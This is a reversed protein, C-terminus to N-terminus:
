TYVFPVLNSPLYLSHWPQGQKTVRLAHVQIGEETLMHLVENGRGFLKGHNGWAALVMGAKDPQCLEKIYEDNLIGGTVVDHNVRGIQAARIYLNDPDTSRYSHLNLKVFGGYGWTKAFNIDRRCTPDLIKETASSPNLGIVILPLKTRNWIRWLVYRHIEDESFIAGCYQGSDDTFTRTISSM